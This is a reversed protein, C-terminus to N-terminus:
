PRDPEALLRLRPKLAERKDPALRAIFLIGDLHDIEHQIIRALLDKGEVELPKGDRDLARVVVRQYRVVEDRIDPLSLCGEEGVIEGEGLVLRPNVLTLLEGPDKSDSPNAVIVRQLVGVQNAALGVGPAAYMTEVMDDILRQVAEDIRGVQRAKRRLEPAGYILIPRCAM